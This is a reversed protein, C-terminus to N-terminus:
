RQGSRNVTQGKQWLLGWEFAIRGQKSLKDAGGPDQPVFVGVVCIKGSPRVSQVVSGFGRNSTDKEAM